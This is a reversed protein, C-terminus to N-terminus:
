LVIGRLVVLCLVVRDGHITSYVYCGMTGCLVLAAKEVAQSVPYIVCAFDM